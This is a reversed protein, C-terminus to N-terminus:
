DQRAADSEKVAKSVSAIRHAYSYPNAVDNLAQITQDLTLPLYVQNVENMTTIVKFRPYKYDPTPYMVVVSVAYEPADKEAGIKVRFSFLPSHQDDKQYPTGGFRAKIYWAMAIVDSHQSFAEKNSVKETLEVWSPATRVPKSQSNGSRNSM